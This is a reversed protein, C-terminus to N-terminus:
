ARRRHRRLVVEQPRATAPRPELLDALLRIPRTAGEDPMDIGAMDMGAGDATGDTAAQVMSGLPDGTPEAPETGPLDADAPLLITAFGDLPTGTPEPAVTVPEVDPVTISGTRVAPISGTAPTPEGTPAYHGYGDRYRSRSRPAHTLVTGLLPAGITRLSEAAAAVQDTRTSGHRTVLLAGDTLRALVAADTVPLLPPSDIVVIRGGNVLSRILTAMRESSLLESPNPPLPGAPMVQLPLDARWSHLADLVGVDGILVSTLGVGSPLGFLDAVSPRRLDADVLVVREGSQALAIALNAATTTKGEGPLSGTVVVSRVRVDVSLFRINTRLQRYAEARVCFADHSILPNKQARSDEPVEGLVPVGTLESLQGRGAVSRDLSDRLVALGVGLGVGVLLGLALNLWPRPSAPSTPLDSTRTVTITVPSTAASRSELQGVLTPFQDAVANALDRATTPSHDRATIDLLVTDLPSTATVQQALDTVSRHLGLRDAVPQLVGPSDVLDVYSKVRQQIFSGGQSLQSLDGSASASVFLQSHAEYVSPQLRTVGFAGLGGLATFVLVTLWRARLLRLYESITV